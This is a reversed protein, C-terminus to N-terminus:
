PGKVSRWSQSLAASVTAIAIPMLLLTQAEEKDYDHHAKTARYVWAVPVAFTLAGLLSATLALVLNVDLVERDTVALLWQM